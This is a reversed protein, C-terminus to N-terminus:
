INLLFHVHNNATIIRGCVFLTPIANGWDSTTACWTSTVRRMSWGASGNRSSVATHKREGACAHIDFM